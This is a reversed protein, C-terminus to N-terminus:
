YVGALGPEGPFHGNFRLSLTVRNFTMSDGVVVMCDDGEGYAVDAGFKRLVVLMLFNTSYSASLIVGFNASETPLTFM